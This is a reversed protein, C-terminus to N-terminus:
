AKPLDSVRAPAGANASVLLARPNEGLTCGLGGRVGLRRLPYAAM